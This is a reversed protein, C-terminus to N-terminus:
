NKTIRDDLITNLFRNFDHLRTEFKKKESHSTYKLANAFLAIMETLINEDKLHKQIEVPLIINRTSLIILERWTTPTKIEEGKLIGMSGNSAFEDLTLLYAEFYDIKPSTGNIFNKVTNRVDKEEVSKKRYKKKLIDMLTKIFKNFAQHNNHIETISARVRNVYM